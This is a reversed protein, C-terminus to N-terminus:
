DEKESVLEIKCGLKKEIDSLTMKKTVTKTRVEAYATDVASVQKGSEATVTFDTRKVPFYGDVNIRYDPYMCGSMREIKPISYEFSSMSVKPIVMEYQNGDLDEYTYVLRLYHSVRGNESLETYLTMSKLAENRRMFGDM